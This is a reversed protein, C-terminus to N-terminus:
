GNHQLWGLLADARDVMHRSLFRATEKLDSNTPEDWILRLLERLSVFDLISSSGLGRARAPFRMRDLLSQLPPKWRSKWRLAAQTNAYGADEEVGQRYRGWINSAVAALLENSAPGSDFSM